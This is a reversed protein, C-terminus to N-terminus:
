LVGGFTITKIYFNTLVNKSRKTNGDKRYVMSYAHKQATEPTYFIKSRYPTKKFNVKQVDDIIEGVVQFPM